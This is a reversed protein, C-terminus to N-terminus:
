RMAPPHGVLFALVLGTFALLLALVIQAAGAPRTQDDREIARKHLHFRGGAFAAVLAGFVLLAIGILRGHEEGPIRIEPRGAAVELFLTFREVVFGLAMIAISTRVWALFTRENAAHDRFRRDMTVEDVTSDLTM